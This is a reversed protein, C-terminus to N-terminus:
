REHEILRWTADILHSFQPKALQECIFGQRPSNKDEGSIEIFGRERCLKQLRDLQSESNRSPMYTVGAVGNRKLEDLLEELYDDEFKATKKDGTVSEGVDGLYAYCV